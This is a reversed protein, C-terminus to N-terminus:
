SFANAIIKIRVEKIETKDLLPVEFLNRKGKLKADAVEKVMEHMTSLLKLINKIALTNVDRENLTKVLDMTASFIYAYEDSSSQDGLSTIESSESEFSSNASFSRLPNSQKKLKKIENCSKSCRKSVRDIPTTLSSALSVCKIPTHKGHYLKENIIQVDQTPSIPTFSSESQDADPVFEELSENSADEVKKLWADSEFCSAKSRMVHQEEIPLLIMEKNIIVIFIDKSVYKTVM